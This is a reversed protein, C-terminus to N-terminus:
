LAARVGREPELSFKSKLQAKEERIKVENIANIIKEPKSGIGDLMLEHIQNINWVGEEAMYGIQMVLGTKNWYQWSEREEQSKELWNAGVSMQKCVLSGETSLLGGLSPPAALRIIANQGADALCQWLFQAFAYEDDFNPERGDILSPPLTFKNLVMKGM